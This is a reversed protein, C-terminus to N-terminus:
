LAALWRTNVKSKNPGREALAVGIKLFTEFDQIADPAAEEKTLDVLWAVIEAPLPRRDIQAIENLGSLCPQVDAAPETPAPLRAAIAAFVGDRMHSSDASLARALSARIAAYEARRVIDYLTGPYRMLIASLFHKEDANAADKKRGDAGLRAAVAAV